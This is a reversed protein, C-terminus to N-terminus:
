WPAMLEDLARTLRDVPVVLDRELFEVHQEWTRHDPAPLEPDDAILVHHRIGLQSCLTWYTRAGFLPPMIELVRVDAPCFLLNTLGAGHVGVVIAAERFLQRQAAFGLKGLAVTEFGYRELCGAVQDENIINRAHGDRRSIFIRRRGVSPVNCQFGDQLFTLAWRAALHAPHFLHMTVNTSVLLHEARVSFRGSNAPSFVRDDLGLFGIAERYYAHPTEMLFRTAATTYRSYVPIKTLQDLLFHSINMPGSYRDGLVGVYGDLQIRGDCIFPRTGGSLDTICKDNADFVYFTSRGRESESVDFSITGQEIDCVSIGPLRLPKGAMRFVYHHADGAPAKLTRTEPPIVRRSVVTSIATNRSGPSVPTVTPLGCHAALQDLEPPRPHGSLTVPLRLYAAATLIDGYANQAGGAVARIGHAIADRPALSITLSALIAHLWPHKPVEGDHDHLASLTHFLCAAGAGAIGALAWRGLVGSLRRHIWSTDGTSCRLCAVLVCLLETDALRGFELVELAESPHDAAVKSMKSMLSALGSSTQLDPQAGPLQFSNGYLAVILGPLGLHDSIPKIAEVLRLIEDRGYKSASAPAESAMM